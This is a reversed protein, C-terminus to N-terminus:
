LPQTSSTNTDNAVPLPHYDNTPVSAEQEPTYAIVAGAADFVPLSNFGLIARIFGNDMSRLIPMGMGAIFGMEDADNTVMALKQETGPIVEGNAGVLGRKWETHIYAVGGKGASFNITLREPFYRVPQGTEQDPESQDIYLVSDGAADTGIHLTYQKGGRTIPIQQIAM